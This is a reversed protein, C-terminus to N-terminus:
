QSFRPLSGVAMALGNRIVFANQFPIINIASRADQQSFDYDENVMAKLTGKVARSANDLLDVSPNGFIGTSLDTTRYAFIPEDTFPAAGMDILMPAFTSFGARQFSAKGISEASLREELWQEQDQRGVSNVYTQGVYFLGGFFMSALFSSFTEWDRQRVGGLVQKTYAGLMFSRFQGITKGMEKSMFAPMTGASNEQVSRRSWRSLGNIFANKADIDDWMQIDLHKVKKGILGDRTAAHKRIQENIREAMDSNIGLAEYRKTNIGQRSILGKQGFAEDVFRQTLVRANLRQLMRNIHTMGSVTAVAQKANNLTYDFVQTRTAKGGRVASSVASGDDLRVHPSHALVDLGVSMISELEDTLADSMNGKKAELVFDRFRPMHYIMGRMGGNGLAMGLESLQAVGLQGMVRVFNWSRVRRLTNNWATEPEQPIGKLARYLIDLNRLEANVVESPRKDADTILRKMREYSPAYLEDIEGDDNPLRLDRFVRQYAAEGMLSDVYSGFLSEVDNELFDELAMGTKPDRWTEDLIVRHRANGIKGTNPDKPKSLKAVIDSARSTSIGSDLLMEHLADLNYGALGREVDLAQYKRARISTVLAKALDLADTGDLDELASTKGPNALKFKRTGEVMSDAIMRYLPGARDAGLAGGSYSNIFDDLAQINWQRSLYTDNTNLEDFGKIGYEKGKQILGAYEQRLRAAVKQVHVNDSADEPRRVAKGVLTNFEARVAPDFWRRTGKGSEKAWAKFAPNYDRYFRTTINKVERTKIEMASTVTVVGPRNGVADEDFREAVWRMIPNESQKLRGVVDIRAKGYMSTPADGVIDLAKSVAEPAVDMPVARAAGVSGDPVAAPTVPDTVVGGSREVKRMHDAFEADVPSKAWAGSAGGLLFGAAASYTLDSWEGVPDQSILYSDLAVNTAAAATGARFARSLKTLKAGYIVPAGVGTTLASAAIAVPDAISAGMQLGVGTWGWQALGQDRKFSERTSAALAKAHAPSVADEFVEHYDSPLGETVEKWLGEDFQFGPQPAFDEKGMQRMANSLVWQEDVAMAAAEMFGVEPNEAAAAQEADQREWDSVPRIGPVTGVETISMGNVQSPDQIQAMRTQQAAGAAAGGGAGGAVFVEDGPAINSMDIMEGNRAANLAGFLDTTSVTAANLGDGHYASKGNAKPLAAWENALNDAFHKDTIKGQKWANYGRGELLAMGMRDQMETDFMEDGTLGMRSVLGNFTKRIIQYGGVASSKSGARVSANQWEQVERITMQTVPKPPAIVSGRFYDEYGRSTEAGRIFSLLAVPKDSM